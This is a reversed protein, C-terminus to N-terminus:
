IVDFVGDNNSFTEISVFLKHFFFNRLFTFVIFLIMRKVPGNIQWPFTMLSWYIILYYIRRCQGYNLVLLKRNRFFYLSFILRYYDFTVKEHICINKKELHMKRNTSVLINEMDKRYSKYCDRLLEFFGRRFVNEPLVM